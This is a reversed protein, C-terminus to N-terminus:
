KVECSFDINNEYYFENDIQVLFGRNEVSEYLTIIMPLTLNINQKSLRNIKKEYYSKFGEYKNKFRILNFESSFYLIIRKHEDGYVYTYPSDALM